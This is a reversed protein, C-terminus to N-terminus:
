GVSRSRVWGDRERIPLTCTVVVSGLVCSGKCAGEHEYEGCEGLPGEGVATEVIVEGGKSIAAVAKKPTRRMVEAMQAMQMM